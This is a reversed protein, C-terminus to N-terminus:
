PAIRKRLCSRKPQDSIGQETLYEEAKDPDNVKFAIYTSILSYSYSVNVGSEAMLGFVRELEGPEDKLVLCVVDSSTAAVDREALVSLAKEPKDVIFRAIGYDGTDSCSYGRVNIDKETFLALIRQLHGPRNEVFVSIQKISM